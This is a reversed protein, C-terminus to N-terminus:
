AELGGRGPGALRVLMSSHAAGLAMRRAAARVEDEEPAKLGAFVRREFIVAAYSAVVATLEFANDHLGSATGGLWSVVLDAILVAVAAGFALSAVEEYGGPGEEADLVGTLFSWLFLTAVLGLLISLATGLALAGSAGAEGLGAPHSVAQSAMIAFAAMWYVPVLYSLFPRM